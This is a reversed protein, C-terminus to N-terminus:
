AAYQASVQKDRDISSVGQDSPAYQISHCLRDTVLALLQCCVPSDMHIPHELCDEQYAPHVGPGDIEHQRRDQAVQDRRAVMLAHVLPPLCHHSVKNAM